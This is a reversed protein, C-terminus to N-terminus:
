GAGEDFKRSKARRRGCLFTILGGAADLGVQMTTLHLPLQATANVFERKTLVVLRVPQENRLLQVSSGGFDIGQQRGEVTDYSSASGFENKYRAVRTDAFGGNDVFEM